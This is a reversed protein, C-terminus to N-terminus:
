GSGLTVLTGRHRGDVNGAFMGAPSANKGGFRFSLARRPATQRVGPLARNMGAQSAASNAPAIM